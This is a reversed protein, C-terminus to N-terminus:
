DVRHLGRRKRYVNSNIEMRLGNAAALAAEESPYQEVTGIIATRRLRKGTEDIERWLFEWRDPSAKRKTRRLYGHQFTQKM